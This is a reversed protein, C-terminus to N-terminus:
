PSRACRAGFNKDRVTPDNGDRYSTALQSAEARFAGGRATRGSPNLDLFACDNCQVAPGGWWDFTWESVNGALDANGYSGDGKPSEAGVDTTGTSACDSGPYYTAYTCDITTSNAPKSWPYFRQENGGCAAYNWEAESPLFGGDWICFAYAEFWTICNIPRSEGAGASATWTALMPDCSLNADTPAVSSAWATAWGDEYAAARAADALGKGGNLHTHKGAGASPRWGADWATKFKRFRGVTVEYMDLRFDSITARYSTDTHVVEEHAVYFTGGTM